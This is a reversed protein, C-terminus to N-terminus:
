HATAAEFSREGRIAHAHNRGFSEAIGFALSRHPRQSATTDFFPIIEQKRLAGDGKIFELM